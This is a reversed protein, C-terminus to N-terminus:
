AHSFGQSYSLPIHQSFAKVKVVDGNRRYFMFELDAESYEARIFAMGDDLVPYSDPNNEICDM